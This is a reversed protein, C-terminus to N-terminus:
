WRYKDNGMWCPSEMISKIPNEKIAIPHEHWCRVPAKRRNPLERLKLSIRFQHVAAHVGSVLWKPTAFTACFWMRGRLRRRKRRHCDVVDSDGQQRFVRTLTWCDSIIANYQYVNQTLTFIRGEYTSCFTESIQNDTTHNMFIVKCVGNWENAMGNITNKCSFKIPRM